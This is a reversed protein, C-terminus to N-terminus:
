KQGDSEKTDQTFLNQLRKVLMSRGSCTRSIITEVPHGTITAIESYSLGEMDALLVAARYSIPLKGIASAVVGDLPNEGIRYDFNAGDSSGKHRRSYERGRYITKTFIDNLMTLLWSRHDTGEQFGDHSKYVKLYANQVLNQAHNEDGAMYLAFRYISDMHIFIETEFESVKLGTEIKAPM